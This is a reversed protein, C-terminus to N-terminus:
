IGHADVLATRTPEDLEGTDAIGRARQFAELGARVMAARRAGSAGRWDSALLGLNELRGAVGSMTSLPDLHGVLVEITADRDLVRVTVREVSTPVDFRLVGDGDTRAEVAGGPLDVECSADRLTEGEALLRLAVPQAPRRATFRNVQASSVARRPPSTRPLYVVDGPLLVDPSERRERLERNRGDEWVERADFGQRASLRTMTEGQAVIHPRWDSM